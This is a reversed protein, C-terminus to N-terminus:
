PLLAVRFCAAIVRASGRITSQYFRSSDGIREHLTIPVPFVRFGRRLSQVMLETGISHKSDFHGVADYVTRRYAKLGCLPDVIGFRYRTYLSFIMEGWHRIRPRQGVVVDAYGSLIPALIRPIDAADHEGDADFTVIIDAGRKAAELFGREIAGDYGRSPDIRLVTAGSSRAREGTADMSADDVVIVEQAHARLSRVVSEVTNMENHAPVVVVIKPSLMM